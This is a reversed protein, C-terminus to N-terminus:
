HKVFTFDAFYTVSDAKTWLGVKGAGKFTQDEADFLREGNLFVTFLSENFVVRLTNWRRSPVEHKVGYARSPLGKPAISLRTGAEVKYLVVNNELANARVIYYNNPDQYRWVIGAARDISGDVAKFAVSAEGNRITAGDWIALPFHGATADRSVQAFAMPPHPATDDRVIEWKPTGGTHTMAVTWGAPLSGPADHDFRIVEGHAVSQLLVTALVWDRVDLM